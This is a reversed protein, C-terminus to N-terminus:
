DYQILNANVGGMKIWGNWFYEVEVRRLAKRIMIKTSLVSTSLMQSAM